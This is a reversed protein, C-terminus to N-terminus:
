KVVLTVNAAQSAAGTESVNVTVNYGSNPVTTPNLAISATGTKSIDAVSTATITVNTPLGAAITPPTYTGHTPDATVISGGNATTVAWTVGKNGSDNALVATFTATANTWGANKPFISSSSGTVSTISVPHSSSGCAILFGALALMLCMSAVTAVRSMKRGAFGVMVVGAIPLTLPLWPLRNDSRHRLQSGPGSNPGTTKVALTVTSTRSGAPITASTSPPGGNVSYSCVGTTLTPDTPSFSCSFSVANIFTSGSTPTATFSYALSTQGSLVTHSSSGTTVFTFTAPNITQTLAVSTSSANKADGGYVATISHLGVTLSSTSLAFGTAGGSLTGSGLATTGDYITVTGTPPNAGTTTITATFTVSAGFNAPNPSSALATTTTALSAAIWATLLNNVDVSGLGTVLNYGTASDKNSATYGFVGATPCVIGPPFGSPSGPQCSVTNDGTTIQHFATPNKAALHYLTPNINGLGPASQVGSLVVDQNLLAV